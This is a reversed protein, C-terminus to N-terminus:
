AVAKEASVLTLFEQPNVGSTRLMENRAVQVAANMAVNTEDLDDLQRLEAPFTKQIHDAVIMSHDKDSLGSLYSPADMIAARITEDDSLARQIREHAPLSRLWVRTQDRRSEGAPDLPKPRLNFRATKAGVQHRVVVEALRRLQPGHDKKVLDAIADSKGERSLSKNDKIKKREVEFNAFIDFAREIVARHEQTAFKPLHNLLNERPTPM